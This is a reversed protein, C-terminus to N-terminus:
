EYKESAAKAYVCREWADCCVRDMYGTLDKQRRFCVRILSGKQAGECKVYILKQAKGRICHDKYYPCRIKAVLAGKGVNPM